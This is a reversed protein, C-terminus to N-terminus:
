VVSKRDARNLYCFLLNAGRLDAENLVIGILDAAELNIGPLKLGTFLTEGNRYRQVLEKAEM